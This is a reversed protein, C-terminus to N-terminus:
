TCYLVIERSRPVERFASELGQIRMRVAGPIARPESERDLDPRLDVVMLNEGAELRRQLEGPFIRLGHLSRAPLWRILTKLGIFGGAGTALIVIVWPGMDRALPLLRELESRLFYGLLIFVSAWIGAGIANLLLFRHRPM